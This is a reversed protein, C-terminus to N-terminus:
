VVLLMELEGGEYVRCEALCQWKVSWGERMYKDSVCVLVFRAAVDIAKVIQSM